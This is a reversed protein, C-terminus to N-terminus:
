VTSRSSLLIGNANVEDPIIKGQRVPLEFLSRHVGGGTRGLVGTLASKWAPPQLCGIRRSSMPFIGGSRGFDSDITTMRPPPDRQASLIDRGNDPQSQCASSIMPSQSRLCVTMYTMIVASEPCQKGRPRSHWQVTLSASAPLDRCRSRRAGAPGLRSVQASEGPLSLMGPQRSPRIPQTSIPTLACSTIRDPQRGVTDPEPRLRAPGPRAPSRRRERM